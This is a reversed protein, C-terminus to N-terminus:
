STNLLWLLEHDPLTVLYETHMLMPAQKSATTLGIPVKAKDDQSHLTVEAPSLIAALEELSRISARVFKKSPRSAHRSNQSKYLKIPATTVHRKGEITRHNQPLLHFYVSSRKLEFGERNLAETLQDLTKVTRILEKRRRDHAASGSIPIQCIAKNLELKNCKRPRGLDSTAKGMLKKCAMKDMNELKRKTEDRLKKQRTANQIVDKLEKKLRNLTAQRSLIEKRDSESAQGLDRKRYLSVLIENAIDIEKNLEDQKPTVKPKPTAQTEM